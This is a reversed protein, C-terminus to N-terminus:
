DNRLKLNKEALKARIENLSTVGFNRVTMLSDPTRALVEGITNLGLRSLCKRARVSLNLEAVSKEHLSREEPSLDAYDIEPEMYSANVLDQGVHLGKSELILRVEKLSTEGFNRGALLEQESINTLDGLTVIGLQDLYNRSRASLEFDALSIKRIQEQERERRMADEDYVMEASDEVDKLYMEARENGPDVSLVRQFCFAAARYNELDEYLLGLNMMGSLLLPPQSLSREYLEVADRDLGLRNYEGALRFLGESFRPSMDVAREFYEVAGYTDGRDALLCGMQYSYEARGAAERAYERIIKEAEDLNELLRVAGARRLACHISDYGHTSATLYMEGAEAFRDLRLLSEAAYFEALGHNSIRSFYRVAEESRSLFYATIGALLLSRETANESSISEELISFAQEVQSLQDQDILNRLWEIQSSGIPDQSEFFDRIKRDLIDVKPTESPLTINSVAAEALNQEIM